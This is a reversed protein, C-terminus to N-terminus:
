TRKLAITLIEHGGLTITPNLEKLVNKELLDMEFLEDSTHIELVAESDSLNFWRTIVMEEAESVKLASPAVEVHMAELLQYVPELSGKKINSCKTIWNIQYQYAEQYSLFVDKGSGHPIIEFEAEHRGLCQAEPTLFVGWDGMERVGRHLTVAITNRGDRLVEYENLGKNAITLGCADTHVNIFAQQHQANCPNEWEKCPVTNRKAAEFVSDAYHYSTDLGTEFLVRLRHDLAENMFVTKVKIGRSEQEFTYYTEITMPTMDTSRRTKRQKFEILDQIERDLMEDASSPIMMQHTVKFVASYPKDDIIEIIADLDKTTIPSDEVPSFFIYENGVDGCDEYIGLNTFTHGNIKDEVTLSGNKAFNVKLAKTEVSYKGTILSEAKEKTEDAKVLAFTDWGYAPIDKAELTVRVKKAIYPQRFKDKPLDYHFANPLVQVTSKVTNGNKDIVQYLPVKKDHMEKVVQSVPAERFYKKDTEVEIEVVGNRVWGSTNAVIFPKAGEAFVSTDIKSELYDMCERIIHHAVKEAKEFRTVMERHVDDVSCGCISDHPHNQMLLKWGYTFLHHPYSMGERYAMAAIPEAMKEFLMQCHANMQKLYIRSSATNALTYWGQTQQSRLEGKITAIDAPLQSRTEKIYTEFDSHVFEVEPYVKGATRIALSLDTQVPQHDCGNMFLLQDTSAYRKADELKKDWYVKSEQDDVPVEIGNSYWNALLIALISSGDGSEWNMESYPSEYSDSDSVQNNFGTPKVGRGFIATEIGAKKLLQPAQGMNGFSDPFYGIKCVHGGYQKAVKHGMQLNRVNAEGSTLFEDQLIYWPGVNIRKAQILRILRDRNEPRVELYDEILITQGDLHFSKYEPDQELTEILTDMLEVLLMHHTEYPLYWERDWHSHSIIHAKKM